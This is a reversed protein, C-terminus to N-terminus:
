GEAAPEYGHVYALTMDDEAWTECHAPLPCGPGPGCRRLREWASLLSGYLRTFEEDTGRNAADIAAAGLTMVAQWAARRRLAGRFVSYAVVGSM